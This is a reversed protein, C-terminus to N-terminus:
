EGPSVVPVVLAGLKILALIAMSSGSHHTIVAGKEHLLVSRQGLLRAAITRIAMILGETDVAVLAPADLRIQRPTWGALPFVHGPRMPGIKNGEM